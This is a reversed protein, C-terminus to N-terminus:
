DSPRPDIRLVAKGRWADQKITIRKGILEGITTAGTASKLAEGDAKASLLYGQPHVEGNKTRFYLVPKFAKQGPRPEVEEQQLYAIEVTIETRGWRLLQEVRLFRAPFLDDILMDPNLPRSQPAEDKSM